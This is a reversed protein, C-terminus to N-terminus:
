LTAAPGHATGAAERDARQPEAADKLRHLQLPEYARARATLGPTRPSESAPPSPVLLGEELLQAVLRRLDSEAQIVNVEYSRTLAAAVQGVSIGRHLLEWAFASAGDLTYRSGDALNLVIADGGDLTTAVDESAITYCLERDPM